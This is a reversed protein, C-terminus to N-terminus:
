HSVQGWLEAIRRKAEGDDPREDLIIRWAHLADGARGERDDLRALRVRLWIAGGRTEQEALLRYLARTWCDRALAPENAAVADGALALVWPDGRSLAIADLADAHSGALDGAAAKSRARYAHLSAAEATAPLALTPPVLRAIEDIRNRGSAVSAAINRAALDRPWRALLLALRADAEDQRSAARLRNSWALWAAPEQPLGQLLRDGDVFPEIDALTEAAAAPAYGFMRAIQRLALDTRGCRALVRAAGRAVGKDTPTLRAAAQAQLAAADRLADTTATEALLSAAITRTAGDTPTRRLRTRLLDLAERAPAPDNASLTRALASEALPAPDFPRRAADAGLGTALTAAALVVAGLATAGGQRPRASVAPALKLEPREM